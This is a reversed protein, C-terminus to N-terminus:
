GSAHNGVAARYATQVAQFIIDSHQGPHIEFEAALAALMEEFEQATDEDYELSYRVRDSDPGDEEVAEDDGEDSADSLDLPEDHFSQILEIDDGDVTLSGGTMGLLELYKGSEYMRSADLATLTGGSLTLNNHDVLFKLAQQQSELDLGIKIPMLWRGTERHIGIGRPREWNDSEEMRALCEVRGNGFVLGGKGDNLTKDWKPPDSFGYDRFSEALAQLDHLKPNGESVLGAAVWVPLWISELREDPALQIEDEPIALAQINIVEPVAAPM